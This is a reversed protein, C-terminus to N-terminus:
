NGTLSALYETLVTIREQEVIKMYKDIYGWDVNQNADTPLLVETDGVIDDSMKNNYNFHPGLARRLTAILYLARPRNLEFGIPTMAQVHSYGIFDIPQYFITESGKTTDSFTIVNGSNNPEIYQYQSLGNNESKNSIVPTLRSSSPEKGKKWYKTPKISFLTSVKHAKFSTSPMRSLEDELATHSVQSMGVSNKQGIEWTFYDGVSNRFDELAATPDLRTHQEFNWDAGSLPNIRDEIFTIDRPYYDTPCYNGLIKAAVEAYRGDPNDVPNRNVKPDLAKRKSQREFGDNGMDIFKVLADPAHKVGIKFLYVATAVSTTFVKDPMKISALLTNKELIRKNIVAAAKNQGNGTSAQIIVAGFKENKARDSEQMQDFAREVFVMGNGEASYPPNLLLTTAPFKNDKEPYLGEYSLSDAHVINSSGDGMLIMNLVALIFIDQRVEIGLLQHVKIHNIKSQLEVGSYKQEADKIMANMASVLFAGTGLTFDWVYSDCTVRTLKVMLDTVFDPTLVVDNQEKDPVEIWTHMVNFLTGTFDIQDKQSYFPVVQNLVTKFIESILTSNSDTNRYFASDFLAQRFSNLIAERKTEQIEPVRKKLNTEVKNLIILSDNLDDDGHKLDEMHLPPVTWHGDDRKQGLAAITCAAVLPIRKSLQVSRSNLENNLNKLGEVLTQSKNAKRAKAAEPDLADNVKDVLTSFNELSLFSFDISAGSAKEVLVGTKSQSPETGDRRTAYLAVEYHYTGPSKEYGNIALALAIKYDTHDVVTSAYHVAGMSAYKGTNVWDPEGQENLLTVQRMPPKYLEGKTGKFEGLVPIQFEGNDLILVYDPIGGGDKGSKSKGDKLAKEISNDLSRGVSKAGQKWNLKKLEAGAWHEVHAEVSKEVV